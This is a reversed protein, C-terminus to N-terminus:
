DSWHRNVVPAAVIVPSSRWLCIMKVLYRLTGTSRAAPFGSYATLSPRDEPIDYEIIAICSAGLDSSYYDRPNILEAINTILQACAM